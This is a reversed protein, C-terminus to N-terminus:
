LVISPRTNVKKMESTNLSTGIMISSRCARSAFMASVRSPRCMQGQQHDTFVVCLSITHSVPADSLM